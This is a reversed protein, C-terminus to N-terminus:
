FKFASQLVILRLRTFDVTSTSEMRSWQQNKTLQIQRDHEISEFLTIILFPIRGFDSVKPRSRNQHDPPSVIGDDNSRWETKGRNLAM